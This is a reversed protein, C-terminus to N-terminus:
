ADSAGIHQREIYRAEVWFELSRMWFNILDTDNKQIAETLCRKARALASEIVELESSDERDLPDIEETTDLRNMAAIREAYLADIAAAADKVDCQFPGNVDFLIGGKKGRLDIWERKNAILSDYGFGAVHESIIRAVAEVRESQGSLDSTM